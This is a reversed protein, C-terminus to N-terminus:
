SESSKSLRQAKQYELVANCMEYFHEVDLDGKARNICWAVWQVNGQIYGKGPDIQDLSLALPSEKIADLLEGTLACAKNQKLFLDYLYTDTLDPLIMNFKKSRQKCNSLRSRIASMFRRDEPPVAIIKGTGVYNSGYKVRWEKAKLANCVKCYSHHSAKSAKHNTSGIKSRTFEDLEKEVGCANCTKTEM